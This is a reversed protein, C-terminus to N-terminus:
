VEYSVMCKSVIYILIYILYPSFIKIINLNSYSTIMLSTMPVFQFPLFCYLIPSIVCLFIIFALSGKIFSKRVDVLYFAFIGNIFIAISKIFGYFIAYLIPNVIIKNLISYKSFESELNTYSFSSLFISVLIIILYVLLFIVVPMLACVLKLTFLEKSYLKNKGINYKVMRNKINYYDYAMVVIIIPFIFSQYFSFNFLSIDYSLISNIFSNKAEYGNITLDPANVDFTFYTTIADWYILIILAVAFIPFIWKTSFYYYKKM